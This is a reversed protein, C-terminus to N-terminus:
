YKFSIILLSSCKITMLTPPNLLRNILKNGAFICPKGFFFNLFIKGTVM